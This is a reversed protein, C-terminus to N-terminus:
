WSFGDAQPAVLAQYLNHCEECGCMQTCSGAPGTSDVNWHTGPEVVELVEECTGMRYTPM